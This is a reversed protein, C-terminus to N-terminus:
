QTQSATRVSDNQGTSDVDVTKNFAANTAGGSSAVPKTIFLAVCETHTLQGNESKIAAHFHVKAAGPRSASPEERDVRVDVRLRVGEAPIVVPAKYTVHLSATYGNRGSALFLGGCADDLMAALLGGHAIGPHGCVAGGGLVARATLATRDPALFLAWQRVREEGALGGAFLHKEAVSTPLLPAEGEALGPSSFMLKWGTPIDEAWAMATALRACFTQSTLVRASTDVINELLM